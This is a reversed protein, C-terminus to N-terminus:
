PLPKLRLADLKGIIQHEIQHISLEMPASWWYGHLDFLVCEGRADRDRTCADLSEFMRVPRAGANDVILQM